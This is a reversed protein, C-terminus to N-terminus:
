IKVRYIIRDVQLNVKKISYVQALRIIIHLKEFLMGYVIDLCVPMCFFCGYCTAVAAQFSRKDIESKVMM